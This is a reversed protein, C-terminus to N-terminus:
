KDLVFYLDFGGYCPSSGTQRRDQNPEANSATVFVLAAGFVMPFWVSRSGYLPM